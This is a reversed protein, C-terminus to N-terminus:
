KAILQQHYDILANLNHLHHKCKLITQKQQNSLRTLQQMQNLSYRLQYRVILLYERQNYNEDILKLEENFGKLLSFFQHCDIVNIM